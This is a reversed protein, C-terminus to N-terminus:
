KGPFMGITCMVDPDLQVTLERLRRLDDTREPFDAYTKAATSIIICLHFLENWPEPMHSGTNRAESIHSSPAVPTSGGLTSTGQSSTSEVMVGGLQGPIAVEDRTAIRQSDSDSHIDGYSEGEQIVVRFDFAGRANRVEGERSEPDRLFEEIAVVKYCPGYRSLPDLAPDQFILVDRGRLEDPVARDRQLYMMRSEDRVPPQFICGNHAAGGAALVNRIYAERIEQTPLPRHSPHMWLGSTDSGSSTEEEGKESVANEVEAEAGRSAGSAAGDESAGKRRRERPLSTDPTVRRSLIWDESAAYVVATRTPPEKTLLMTPSEGGEILTDEAFYRGFEELMMVGLQPGGLYMKSGPQRPSPVTPPTPSHAAVESALKLQQKIMALIPAPHQKTRIATRYAQRLKFISFRLRSWAENELWKPPTM